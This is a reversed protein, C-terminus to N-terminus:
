SALDFVDSACRRLQDFLLPYAFRTPETACWRGFDNRDAILLCQVALSGTRARQTRQIFLRAGASKVSFSLTGDESELLAAGEATASDSPTGIAERSAVSAPHLPARGPVSPATSGSLRSGREVDHNM